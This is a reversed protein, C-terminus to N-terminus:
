AESDGRLADAELVRQVAQRFFRRGPDQADGRGEGERLLQGNVEQCAEVLDEADLLEIRHDLAGENGDASFIMKRHADQSLQGPM